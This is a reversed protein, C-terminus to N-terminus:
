KVASVNGNWRPGYARNPEMAGKAVSIKKKKLSTNWCITQIPVIITVHFCKKYFIWTEKNVMHAMQAKINTFTAAIHM